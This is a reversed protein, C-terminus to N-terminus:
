SDGSAEELPRLGMLERSKRILERSQRSLAKASRVSEESTLRNWCRRHFRDSEIIEVPEDPGILRSCVTCKDEGPRRGWVLTPTQRRCSACTATSRTFPEGNEVAATVTRM